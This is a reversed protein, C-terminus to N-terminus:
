AVAQTSADSNKDPLSLIITVVAGAKYIKNQSDSIDGRDVILNYGRIKAKNVGVRSAYINLAERIEDASMEKGLMVCFSKGDLSVGSKDIYEFVYSMEKVADFDQTEDGDIYLDFNRNYKNMVIGWSNKETIELQMKFNDYYNFQTNAVYQSYQDSTYNDVDARIEDTFLFYRGNIYEYRSIVDEEQVAVVINGWTADTLFWKGMIQVKNWAHGADGEKADKLKGTVRVCDIGEIACMVAYAKSLGDCVAAGNLVGELYFANYKYSAEPLTTYAVNNDYYVNIILWDFIARAKQLDSMRDDCIGRMIEKFKNYIRYAQSGSTLLPRYGHSLVYFLQDSTTCEYEDEVCNIAFDDFNARRNSVYNNFVHGIQPYYDKKETASLTAQDGLKSSMWLYCSSNDCWYSSGLIRPFTNESLAKALEAEIKDKGSVYTVKIPTGRNDKVINNFFVFEVYALMDDYSKISKIDSLKYWNRDLFGSYVKDEFRAYLTLDADPMYRLNHRITMDEDIYWVLKQSGDQSLAEAPRTLATGPYLMEDAYDGEVEDPLVYSLTKKYDFDVFKAYLVLSRAFGSLSTLKDEFKNDLYWGVFKKDVRTADKLPFINEVTYESKNLPDNDGGNLVYQIAYTIISFKATFTASQQPLSDIDEFDVEEGGYTWYLFDYGVKNVKPVTLEEVSKVKQILKGSVLEAGEASFTYTVYKDEEEGSNGSTIEGSSVSGSPLDKDGEDVKEVIAFEKSKQGKFNGKGTITVRGNGIEINDSYEVDYDTGFELVRNIYKVSIEPRIEAGTYEYAEASFTIECKDIETRLAESIGSLNCATLSLIASLLLISIILALRRQSNKM